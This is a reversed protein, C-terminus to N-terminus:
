DRTHRGLMGQAVLSELGCRLGYITMRERLSTKVQHTIVARRFLRHSQAM